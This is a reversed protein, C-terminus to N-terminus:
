LFHLDPVIAMLSNEITLCAVVMNEAHNTGGKPGLLGFLRGGIKEEKDLIVAPKKELDHTIGSCCYDNVLQQLREKFQMMIYWCMIRMVM